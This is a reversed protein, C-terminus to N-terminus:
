DRDAAAGYRTRGSGPATTGLQLLARKFHEPLPARYVALDEEPLQICIKYAHLLLTYGAYKGGPRGYLTDGIVPHGLSCMHVRLQHTRGTSPSLQVLTAERLYRIVRYETRSPKGDDRKWTFRKRNRPDRAIPHDVVGHRKQLKGKVIALYTKRVKKEQFQATLFQLAEPDKAAVLIGSTEKDLRHVIGPRVNEDRFSDGLHKVYYLLAQVLTGTYNGAAPHVVMGQPKHILLARSNEYVIDLPINEPEVATEAPDSYRVELLDDLAVTKSLKVTRGNISVEVERQKIQSRSFLSLYESIYRDIRLGCADEQTVKVELHHKM